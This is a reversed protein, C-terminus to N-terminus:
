EALSKTTNCGWVVQLVRPPTSSSSCCICEGVNQVFSVGFSVDLFGDNNSDTCKLTMKQFPHNLLDGTASADLCSDGDNNGVISYANGSDDTPSLGQIICGGDGYVGDGGQTNIYLAVDNEAGKIKINTSFRVEVTDDTGRCGGFYTGLAKGKCDLPTEVGGACPTTPDGVAGNCNCKYAGADFVDLITTSIIELANSTCGLSNSAGSYIRYNQQM